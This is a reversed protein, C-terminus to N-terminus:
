GLSDKMAEGPAVKTINRSPFGNMLGALVGIMVVALGIKLFPYQYPLANLHASIASQRIVSLYMYGGTSGLIAGIIIGAGSIFFGELLFMKVIHGDQIGLCRMMAIQKARIQVARIQM